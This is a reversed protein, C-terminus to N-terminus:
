EAAVLEALDKDFEKQLEFLDGITREFIAVRQRATRRDSQVDDYVTRLYEIYADPRKRLLFYNVGWARQYAATTTSRYQLLKLAEPHKQGVGRWEKLLGSPSAFFEALGESVWAPVHRHRLFLGSNFTLQHACEHILTHITSDPLVNGTTRARNLWRQQREAKDPGSLIARNTTPSYV